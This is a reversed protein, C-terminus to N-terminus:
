LRVSGRSRGARRMRGGMPPSSKDGKTTKTSSCSVIMIRTAGILAKAILRNYTAHGAVPVAPFSCIQYKLDADLGSGTAVAEGADQIIAELQPNGCWGHVPSRIIVQKAVKGRGEADRSAFHDQQLALATLVLGNPYMM